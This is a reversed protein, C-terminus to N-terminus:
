ETKVPIVRDGSVPYNGDAIDEMIAGAVHARVDVTLLAAVRRNGRMVAFKMGSRVGKSAGANLVAMHMERNVALLEITNPLASDGAAVRYQIGGAHDPDTLKYQDLEARTSALFATIRRLQKKLDLVEESIRENEESLRLIVRRAEQAESSAATEAKEQEQVKLSRERGCGPLVFMGAAVLLWVVGATIWYWSRAASKHM